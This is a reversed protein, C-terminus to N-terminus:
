KLEFKWNVSCGTPILIWETFLISIHLGLLMWHIGSQHIAAQIFQRKSSFGSWHIAAEIFQQKSSNGSRHIAAEIFQRKLSNGSWHITTKIFQWKSLNGSRYIAAKIFQPRVRGLAAVKRDNGSLPVKTWAFHGVNTGFHTL